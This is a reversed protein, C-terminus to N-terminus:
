TGTSFWSPSTRLRFWKPDQLRVISSLLVFYSGMMVLMALTGLGHRHFANKRGVFSDISGHLVASWSGPVPMM